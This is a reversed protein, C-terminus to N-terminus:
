FVVMEDLIMTNDVDMIGFHHEWFLYVEYNVPLFMDQLLQIKNQEKQTEKQGIYILVQRVVDNNIYVISGPYIYRIVETFLTMSSGCEYVKLIFQLLLRLEEKAFSGLSERAREGFVGNLLDALFYRLFFEQRSLGQRLDLQTIYHMFVDFVLGRTQEHGELNVDFMHAFEEAFRYLPNIQVVSNRVRSDNIYEMSVEMYPSGDLVPVYRVNERPMGCRDATLAVEWTYNM